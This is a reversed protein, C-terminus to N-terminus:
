DDSESEDEDEEGDNQEDGDVGYGDSDDSDEEEDDSDSVEEEEEELEEDLDAGSWRNGKALDRMFQTNKLAQAAEQGKWVSKDVRDMMLDYDVKFKEVPNKSDRMVVPVDGAKKKRYRTEEYVREYAVKIDETTLKDRLEQLMGMVAALHQPAPRQVSSSSSSREEEGKDDLLKEFAERFPLQVNLKSINTRIREKDHAGRKAGKAKENVYEVFEDAGMFVGKGSINVMAANRAVEKWEDVLIDLTYLWNVTLRAYKSKESIAFVVLWWGMLKEATEHDHARIAQRMRLAPWVFYVMMFLFMYLPKNNIVKNM